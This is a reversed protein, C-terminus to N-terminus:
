TAESLMVVPDIEFHGSLSPPYTSRDLLMGNVTVSKPVNPMVIWALLAELINGISQFSLNPSCTQPNRINSGLMIIAIGVRILHM